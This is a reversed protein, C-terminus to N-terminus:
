QLLVLYILLLAIAAVAGVCSVLVIGWWSPREELRRHLDDREREAEQRLHREEGLQEEVTSQARTTLELRTRLEAVEAAREEIRAIMERLADAISDTTVAEREVSRADEPVPPRSARLAYLSDVSVLWVRNVGEGEPKAALEGREIYRRVTRPSVRLARAAVETTVWGSGATVDADTSRSHRHTADDEM